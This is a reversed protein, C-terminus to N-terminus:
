PRRSMVLVQEDQTGANLAVEAKDRNPPSVFVIYLALPVDLCATKFSKGVVRITFKSLVLNGDILDDTSNLWEWELWECNSRLVRFKNRSIEFSFPVSDSNTTWTGEILRAADRPNDTGPEIFEPPPVYIGPPPSALCQAILLFAGVAIELTSIRRAV